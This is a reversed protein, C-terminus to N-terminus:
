YEWCAQFCNFFTLKCFHVTDKFFSPMHFYWDFLRAYVTKALADRNAAAASCDLAKIIAGELTNIARTCLTSVLLDPDCRIWISIIFSYPVFLVTSLYKWEWLILYNRSRPFYIIWFSWSYKLCLLINDMCANEKIYMILM